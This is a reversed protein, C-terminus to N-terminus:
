PSTTDQHLRMLFFAQALFKSNVNVSLCCLSSLKYAELLPPRGGANYHSDLKRQFGAISFIYEQALSLGWFLAAFGWALGSRLRSSSLLVSATLCRSLKTSCQPGNSQVQDDCMAGSFCTPNPISRCSFFQKHKAGAPECWGFQIESFCSMCQIGRWLDM